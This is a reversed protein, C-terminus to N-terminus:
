EVNQLNGASSATGKKGGVKMVPPPFIYGCSCKNPGFGTPTQAIPGPNSRHGFGLVPSPKRSEINYVKQEM